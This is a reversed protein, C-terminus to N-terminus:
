SQYIDVSHPVFDVINCYYYISTGATTLTFPNPSNDITFTVEGNGNFQIIMERHQLFLNISQLPTYIDDPNWTIYIRVNSDSVSIGQTCTGVTSSDFIIKYTATSTSSEEIIKYSVWNGSDSVPTMNISSDNLLAPYPTIISDNSLEITTNNKTLQFSMSHEQPSGQIYLYWPGSGVVTTTTLNGGNIRYHVTSGILEIELYKSNVQSVSGHATWGNNFDTPDSPTYIQNGNLHVGHVEVPNAVSGLGFITTNQNIVSENILAVTFFSNNSSDNRFYVIVKSLSEVSEFASRIDELGGSGLVSSYRNAWNNITSTIRHIYDNSTGLTLTYDSNTGDSNTQRTFTKGNNEFASYTMSSTTNLILQRLAIQEGDTRPTISKTAALRFYTYREENLPSEITYGKPEGTSIAVDNITDYFQDTQTSLDTWTLGNNSGQIKFDRPARGGGYVGSRPYITYSNLSVASHYQIQIWIPSSTINEVDSIWFNDSDLNKNFANFPYNPNTTGTLISSASVIYDNEVVEAPTELRWEGLAVFTPLNGSSDPLFQMRYCQYKTTNGTIEFYSTFNGQGPYAINSQTDLITFDSFDSSDSGEIQWYGGWWAGAGGEGVRSKVKYRSILTQTPYKIQIWKDPDNNNSESHWDTQSNNGHEFAQWPFYNQYQSSATIEYGRVNEGDLVATTNSSFIPNSVFSVTELTELRWEGLVVLLDTKTWRLRFYQYATNVNLNYLTTYEGLTISTYEGTRVDLETWNSEDNSAEIIWEDCWGVVTNSATRARLQYNRLYVPYSYKIQIWQESGDPDSSAYDGGPSAHTLTGRDFAWYPKFREENNYVTRSSVEYGSVANGDLTADTNSSFIPNPITDGTYLPFTEVTDLRWESLAIHEPFEGLSDPLFQLRYYQYKTNNGTIDFELYGGMGPDSLGNQTDLVTFASFDSLNSGQIEWNGSWENRGYDVDVAQITYRSLINHTPYKIQLWQSSYTSDRSSYWITGPTTNFADHAAFNFDWQSSASVEYGVVNEGNLTADTNSSFIPNPITDGTYLPFTEVTDLRWESLAIHEPFEGLSDPLFQLRYYQYKTNNGTIDFELYGGMGPDSLGNQTDLVTFASFDSLNSGQIEWNGSWENRGYDVDVAQITYRSLINHTPYKIQLWQSSYTSDRSSYWITGPTTNFADHAAFNFDWQSSASVEYGSVANGDLTADTNSSFIPNSVLKPLSVLQTELTLLKWEGIAVYSPNGTFHMRYNRYKTTNGTIVFYSTFNGHGPYPIASQTDLITFDSFDSSDSGEIQWHGSWFSNGGGVRGKVRYRSLLTKTPYEIQIWIDSDGHHTHWDTGGTTGHDFVSWPQYSISDNLVSSASVKYGSVDTGDLTADTNSSFIPNSVLTDTSLLNIAKSDSIFQPNEYYIDEDSVFTWDKVFTLYDRATKGTGNYILGAAGLSVGTQVDKNSWGVLTNSYNEVSLGTDHLMEIMDTVQSVNWNGIDQNFIEANKFMRYMDTVNSVNWGGLDQNFLKSSHFVYQMNMVKSVDWGAINQNFKDTYEFMATMNMNNSVNWGAINQNFNEARAFMNAMRTVNSVNWGGLNQNFNDLRHFMAHTDTVNSVNWGGINQNFNGSGSSFFMREMNKVNSTDWNSINSNFSDKSEFLSSMDTIESVDWNNIHDYTSLASSENSFWLDLATQLETRDVPTFISNVFMDGNFTWGKETLIHRAAAGTGNYTLGAAGLSVGSQVAQPSWGDLTNSYNEESMGTNDFFDNMITVKSINWGGLNQNFSTVNMFLRQMALVQSVDWNGIDQNFIGGEFCRHMTTVQSVNWGGIDQNFGADTFFFTQSMSKVKSVNWGGINQNFVSRNFMSNLSEVNSVNWGGINQNFNKNNVFMNRMDTVKSVNWGGINQDFIGIDTWNYFMFSMNTVNSTDWNSINSNFNTKDKFLSSMDEVNRVDWTNIDGFTTIAETENNIWLEVATQLETRNAFFYGIHYKLSIEEEHVLIVGKGNNDFGYGALITGSSSIDVHSNNQYSQNVNDWPVLTYGLDIADESWSSSEVNYNLVLMQDTDIDDYLPNVKYNAIVIRTGDANVAGSREMSYFELNNTPELIRHELVWKNIDDWRYIFAANESDAFPLTHNGGALATVLVNGDNSMSLNRYGFLDHRTGSVYATGYLISGSVEEFEGTSTNRIYTRINGNNIVVNNVDDYNRAAGVVIKNGDGSMQVRRGLTVNSTSPHAIRITSGFQNWNGTANDYDFVFAAGHNSYYEGSVEPSRATPNGFVFSTADDNFDMGAAEYPAFGGNTDEGEITHELVWDNGSLDYINVIQRRTTNDSDLQLAGLALKDGSKSIAIGHGLQFKNVDNKGYIVNIENWTGEVKKYTYVRGHAVTGNLADDRTYFPSSAVMINGDDSICVERGFRDGDMGSADFVKAYSNESPILHFSPSNNRIFEYNSPDTSVGSLDLYNGLDFTNTYQTIGSVSSINFEIEYSVPDYTHISGFTSPDLFSIDPIFRVIIGSSDFSSDIGFSFETVSDGAYKTSFDGDILKTREDEYENINTIRKLEGTTVSKIEIESLMLRYMNGNKHQTLSSVNIKHTDPITYPNNVLGVLFRTSDQVRTNSAFANHNSSHLSEMLFPSEILMWIVENFGFAYEASQGSLDVGGFVKDQWFTKESADGSADIREQILSQVENNLVTRKTDDWGSILGGNSQSFNINKIQPESMGSYASHVIHAGISGIIKDSTSSLGNNFISASMPKLNIFSASGISVDQGLNNKFVPTEATGNNFFLVSDESAFDITLDDYSFSTTDNSHVHLKLNKVTGINLVAFHTETTEISDSVAFTMNLPSM